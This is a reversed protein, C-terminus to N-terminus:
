LLSGSHSVKDALGSTSARVLLVREGTGSWTANRASKGAQSLVRESLSWRPTPSRISPSRVRSTALLCPKDGPRTLWSRRSNLCRQSVKQSPPSTPRAPVSQQVPGVRGVAGREQSKGRGWKQSSVS